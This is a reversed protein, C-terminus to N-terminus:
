HHHNLQAGGTSLTVAPKRKIHGINRLLVEFMNPSVCFRFSIKRKHNNLRIRDSSILAIPDGPTYAVEQLSSLASPGQLQM